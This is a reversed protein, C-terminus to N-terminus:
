KRKGRFTLVDFKKERSLLVGREGWERPERRGIRHRVRRPADVAHARVESPNHFPGVKNAYLPVKEHVKYTHDAASFLARAGAESLKIEQRTVRAQASAALGFVLVCLMMMSRSM